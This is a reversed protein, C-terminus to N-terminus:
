RYVRVRLGLRVRVRVRVRVWVGLELGLHVRGVEGRGAPGCLWRELPAYAVCPEFGPSAPLAGPLDAVTM